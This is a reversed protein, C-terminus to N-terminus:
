PEKLYFHVYINYDKNRTILLLWINFHETTSYMNYETPESTPEAFQKCFTRLTDLNAFEPLEMLSDSFDNIEGCLEDGLPKEHCPHWTRHWRYGNYDSRSHLVKSAPVPFSNLPMTKQPGEFISKFSCTPTLVAGGEPQVPQVFPQQVAYWERLPLPHGSYDRMAEDGGCASCVMVDAYRSLANVMLHGSLKKGCRLCIPPEPADPTFLKKDEAWKRELENKPFITIKM